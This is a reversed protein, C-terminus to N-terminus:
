LPSKILDSVDDVDRLAPLSFYKLALKEFDSLTQQLVAGTSWPKNLFVDPYLKSLGLLYYGGDLAPGIVADYQELQDFATKILEANLEFCDSGIIVVKEYRSEFLETFANLMREGLDAGFQLRQYYGNCFWRDADETKESYFVYKDNQLPLTIQFTHELLQLYVQLAKENGITKALRTKVKGAEPNKVFIILASKKNM